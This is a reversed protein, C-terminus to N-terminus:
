RSRKPSYGESVSRCAVALRQVRPNRYAAVPEPVVSIPNPDLWSREQAMEIRAQDRALELPAPERVPAGREAVPGPYDQAQGGRQDSRDLFDRASYRESGSRDWDTRNLEAQHPETRDREAQYQETQYQETQNRETQNREAQYQETQNREIPDRVM